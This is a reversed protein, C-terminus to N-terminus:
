VPRIGAEPETPRHPHRKRAAALATKQRDSRRNRRSAARGVNGCVFVWCPGSVSSSKRVSRGAEHLSRFHALQENPSLDERAERQQRWRKVLAIVVAAVLLAAVLCLSTVLLQVTREDALVFSPVIIGLAAM